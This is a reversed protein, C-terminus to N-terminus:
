LVTTLVYGSLTMLDGWFSGVTSTYRDLLNVLRSERERMVASFFRSLCALLSTVRAAEGHVSIDLHLRDFECERPVLAQTKNKDM